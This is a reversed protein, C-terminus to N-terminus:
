VVEEVEAAVAKLLELWWDGRRRLPFVLFALFLPPLIAWSIVSLWLVM